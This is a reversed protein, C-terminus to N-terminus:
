VCNGPYVQYVNAPHMCCERQTHTERERETQIHATHTHSLTQNHRLIFVFTLKILFEILNQKFSREARCYNNALFNFWFRIVIFIWYQLFDVLRLGTFTRKGYRLFTKYPSVYHNLNLVLVHNLYPSFFRSVRIIIWSSSFFSARCLGVM